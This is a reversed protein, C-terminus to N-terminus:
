VCFHIASVRIRVTDPVVLGLRNIEALSKRHRSAAIDEGVFKTVGPQIPLVAVQVVPLGLGSESQGGLKGTSFRDTKEFRDAPHGGTTKEIV